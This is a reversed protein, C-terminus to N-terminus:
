IIRELGDTVTKGPIRGRKAIPKGNIEKIDMTMDIPPRSSIYSGVGFADAGAAIHKEIKEPNLGGSVFIKVHNFGAQDLRARVEKILEPRVGGRESPTDLRIGYLKDKLANAVRLAEEAEDKFTDVLILRSADEPMHKDYAEAAKVTDGMILFVTHPATGVPDVGFLKAGLVCSAGSAGGVLAAREMVPAVSPHVHRAGFSFFSKEKVIQKIEHAATAWGSSHALIGLIATEHIGFESYPGEIRMVVDKAQCAQGEKLAWVKIDKDRLLNKAEDIGALIGSRRMFVEATVPTDALGEKKLIENTRIFYIDTVAGNLIEEHEASFFPRNKDIKLNKVKELTDIENRKM